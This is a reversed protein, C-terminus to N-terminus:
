ARGMPSVGSQRMGRKELIGWTETDRGATFVRLFTAVGAPIDFWEDKTVRLEALPGGISRM